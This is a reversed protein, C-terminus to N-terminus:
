ALIRKLAAPTLNLSPRLGLGLEGATLQQLTKLGVTWARMGVALQASQLAPKLRPTGLHGM